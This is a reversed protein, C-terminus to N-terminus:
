AMKKQKTKIQLYFGFTAYKVNSFFRFKVCVFVCVCVCVWPASKFMYLCKACDSLLVNRLLIYSSIVTLITSKVTLCLQTWFRARGANDTTARLKGMKVIPSISACLTTMCSPSVPTTSPGYGNSIALLRGPSAAERVTDNTLYKAGWGQKTSKKNRFTTTFIWHYIGPFTSRTMRPLYYTNPLLQRHGSSGQVNHCVLYLCRSGTHPCIAPRPRGRAAPTSTWLAHGALCSTLSM